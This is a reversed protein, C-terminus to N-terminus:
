KPPDKEAHPKPKDSPAPKEPPNAPKKPADPVPEKEASGKEPAGPKPASAALARKDVPMPLGKGDPTATELPLTQLIGNGSERQAEKLNGKEDYWVKMFGLPTRVLHLADTDLHMEWTGVAPDYDDFFLVKFTGPRRHYGLILLSTVSGCQVLALKDNVVPADVLQGNLKMELAFKGATNQGHVAIDRGNSIMHVEFDTLEGDAITQQITTETGPTTAEGPIVMRGCYTLAGDYRRVVAYREASVRTALGRTEVHGTMVLDGPPLEPPEVAVPTRLADKIKDQQLKVDAVLADLEKRPMVRGRLVVVAPDHLNALDETPDGKTMVFDASKTREITGRRTDGIAAAAGATALRVCEAASIGARKWLLLEDLLAIGPMHWPFPAGSGPVLRCGADHLRLVLKSQAELGALGSRLWKEDIVRARADYERRWQVEYMPGLYALEPIGEKPALLPRAYVSLLPTLALKKAGAAAVIADLKQADVTEWHEGAPLFAELGYVGDQAKELVEAISTGRALPGWVQHQRWDKGEAHHALDLVRTWADHPLGPQFSLYDIGEIALLRPLKADVDAPTELVVASKSAPPAGDLASGAVWLSPGPSRNRSAYMAESLIRTQENGVDRAETVGAAVYLRDHDPDHNMYGDILGPIVHLGSADVTRAGSPVKVDAGVETILGNVVLITMVAPQADAVMTHVIGGTIALVDSTGSSVSRDQVDAAGSKQAQASSAAIIGLALVCAARAFPAQSRSRPAGACGTGPRSNSRRGRSRRGTRGM